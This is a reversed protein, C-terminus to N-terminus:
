IKPDTNFIELDTVLEAFDDRLEMDVTRALTDSDWEDGVAVINAIPRPQSFLMVERGRVGFLQGSVDQAAPSCLYGVLNGVHNAPVTLGREKYAAQEDNAPEIMETVRTHAFPAVANCTIGSRMMDLATIRMLSTLGGKAGAYSAQGYNGYYAATSVLNIIRGWIYKGGETGDETGRGAKSQERMIPTAAGILYYAASLNNRIVTDWDDVSPKFVLSDRLIAANNVIIDIGGFEEVAFDVAERAAAPVSMDNTYARAQEGLKGAVEQAVSPDPDRGDIECGNDAIIVSAGREALMESIALGIGRAGGTVIAVRGELANTDSM